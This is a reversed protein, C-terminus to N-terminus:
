RILTVNGHYPLVASNFCIIEIQYVYTEMPAKGGNFTGDWGASPDNPAFDRRAFVVQGWRNFIQISRINSLGKGRIYFVDNMGDGNPSFSNPVFLNGETCLAHITITDSSTCGGANSVDVRYTVSSTVAAQPDPCGSCSLGAVPTWNWQNIDPSNDTHLQITYGTLVTTDNGAFVVPLPYVTVAVNASDTFCHDSDSAIVKYITTLKPSAQTVPSAPDAVGSAPIWQYLDAGSATLAISQGACITGGPLVALVFRQRARVHVTDKKICGHLSYGTVTYEADRAPNIRPNACSLCSPPYAAPAPGWVLSDAGTALLQIPTGVCVFTDNGAFTNPLPWINISRSANSTCYGQYTVQLKVTYVGPINYRQAPPQSTDSTQGNGFGWKWTLFAPDGRVPDSRFNLLAPTCGASDGRINAGPRRDVKITDVLITSDICGQQTTVRHWVTFVGPANYSHRPNAALNITTDGPLEDGFRWEEKVIFDNAVSKDTFQVFGSDCVRYTDMAAVCSVATVQITDAGIYIVKCGTSDILIMRPLFRGGFSYEYDITTSATADTRGDNFDWILSENPLIVAKFQVALPRCGILPSYSFSGQPGKLVIKRIMSDQCGGPGSVLEKVFYTGPFNYFHTPNPLASGSGDGFDWHLSIYNSSQDTFTVKLPPCNGTSDSLTFGAVPLSIHVTHNASDRCGQKDVILLNVVYIGAAPYTYVPSVPSVGPGNAPQRIGNGFDWQYVLGSGTSANSFVITRGPCTNTDSTAFAAQPDFVVIAAAKRISDMCGYSDTIKLGVTYTGGRGYAHRFPPASYTQVTGDGYDWIWQVIAHQGDQLSGDAWGVTDNVCVKLPTTFAATPGNVRIYRLKSITDPCGNVDTAILLVTYLGAKTYTHSIGGAAAVTGSVQIRIGDGFDWLVSTLYVPDVGSSSFSVTTGKCLVTSAAQFDPHEDAIIFNRFISDSCGDHTVVLKVRYAGKAAYRHFPSPSTSTSGDGFTWRWTQAGISLDKFTRGYKDACDSIVNFRAVPPDVHVFSDIVLTDPCTFNWVVLMIKYYGTDGYLHAPNALASTGGDGFDWKWQNGAPTSVNSFRVPVSKCVDRPTATFNALPKTNAQVADVLIASDACGGVTTIFLKVTYKGEATYIRSPAALTSSTGDGFDWYYSKINDAVQVTATPTITLPLCGKAPLGSITIQPPQVRIYASRIVTDTCGNTATVVLRVTFLGFSSYTHVPSFGNGASGDGFDWRFNTGPAANTTFSVTFPVKCSITDLTSFTATPRPLVRIPRVTSDVCNQFIDVLSITYVGPTGYSISPAQLTSRTGDGFDWRVLLPSPISSNVVIFSENTCVSDPSNFGAKINGIAFPNPNHTTDRCGASSTTVLTATYIGNTTYLHVPNQATSSSGDGFNWNYSLTGPGASQNIFRVQVPVQCRADATDIFGAKVGSSIRVYQNKGTAKSCGKDTMVELTIAFNGAITYIHQPNQLGSTDGDGFDWRWQSVPTSNGSVAASGTFQVRLPFCGTTDSVSFYPTPADYVTIYQLRTVSDSGTGASDTVVLKVTYTGPLYYISSPNQFFSITGNGLDWKWAAAGGSSTDQFQVAVPACGAVVNAAFGAHVQAYSVHGMLSFASLLICYLYKLPKM